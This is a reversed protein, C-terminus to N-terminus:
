SAGEPEPAASGNFTRSAMVSVWGDFDVLLLRARYSRGAALSPPTAAGLAYSAAQVNPYRWEVERTYIGVVAAGTSADEIVLFYIMPRYREAAPWAFLAGGDPLTAVELLEPALETDAKIVIQPSRANSAALPGPRLRPARVRYREGLQAQPLATQRVLGGSFDAIAPAAVPQWARGRRRVLAHEGSGIAPTYIVSVRGSGDARLGCAIVERSAVFRVIPRALFGVRRTMWRLNWVMFRYYSRRLASGFTMMMPSVM